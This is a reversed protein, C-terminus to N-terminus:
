LPSLPTFVVRPQCYLFVEPAPTRNSLALVSTTGSIQNWEPAASVVAITEATFLGKNIMACICM